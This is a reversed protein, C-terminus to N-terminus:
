RRLATPCLLSVYKQVPFVAFCDGAVGTCPMYVHHFRAIRKKGTDADAKVYPQQYMFLILEVYEAVLELRKVFDKQPIAVVASCKGLREM